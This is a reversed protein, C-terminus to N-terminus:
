RKEQTQLNYSCIVNRGNETPRREIWHVVDAHRGGIGLETIRNKKNAILTSTIPSIWSGYERWKEQEKGNGEGPGGSGKTQQAM